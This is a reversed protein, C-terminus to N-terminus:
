KGGGGGGGGSGIKSSSGNSRNGGGGAGGGGGMADPSKSWYTYRKITYPSLRVLLQLNTWYFKMKFGDDDYDIDSDDGDDDSDDGDDDSTM